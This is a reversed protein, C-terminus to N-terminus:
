CIFFPSQTSPGRRGRIARSPGQHGKILGLKTVSPGRSHVDRNV